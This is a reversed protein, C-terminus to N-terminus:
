QMISSRYIRITRGMKKHKLEKNEVMQRVKQESIDLIKAADRINCFVDLNNNSRNQLLQLIKQQQDLISNITEESLIAIKQQFM